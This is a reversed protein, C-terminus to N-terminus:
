ACPKIKQGLLFHRTIILHYSCNYSPGNNKEILKPSISRGGLMHQCHSLKLKLRQDSGILKLKVSILNSKQANFIAAEKTEIFKIGKEYNLVNCFKPYTNLFYILQHVPRNM